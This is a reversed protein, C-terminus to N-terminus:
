SALSYGGALAKSARTISRAAGAGLGMWMFFFGQLVTNTLIGMGINMVLTTVVMVFTLRLCWFTAPMQNELEPGAGQGTRLGKWLLYLPFLFYCLYALLGVVGFEKLIDLYESDTIIDSYIAKAPGNGVFPSRAIDKGAEVWRDDARIRLSDAQLPNQLTRFRDLTAQNSGAVMQVTWVFLPLLLLLLGVQALRKRGSTSPLTFIIAIALGTNLLGYRSGTMALTVLCALAMIVNQLRSGVRNLAALVFAAISWTMLIGLINPNGMTSYVRRYHALPGNSHLGNAYYENLAVSIGTNMWQGWAYLCIYALPIAFFFALRRLSKEPLDAEFMLTFYAVPLWYKPFELFDRSLLPHGLIDSGYWISVLICFSFVTAIVFMGNPRIVRAFRAMLLWLYIVCILPLSALEVKIWFDPGLRIVPFSISGCIMAIACLQAMWQALAGQKAAFDPSFSQVSITAM